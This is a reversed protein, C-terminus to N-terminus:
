RFEELGLNEMSEAEWAELQRQAEGPDLLLTSRLALARDVMTRQWQIHTAHLSSLQDLATVAQDVDGARALAYAIAQQVYPDQSKKLSIAAHAVDRPSQIDLLFPLAQQKLAIGLDAILNPDDAKWDHCGGGLRWGVNFGIVDSPVFLPELLVQAYFTRPDISRDFFVGRLTHGIPQVFLLQGKSAFGPLEPLLRKGIAEFEKKTMAQGSEDSSEHRWWPIQVSDVSNTGANADVM